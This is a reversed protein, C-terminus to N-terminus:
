RAAPKQSLRRTIRVVLRRPLFRVAFAALRSAFGTIALPRGAMMARYGVEAVQRSSMLGFTTYRAGELHARGFFDTRTPGPCLCTATVGTGRLEEALAETYSLVCAKTAYYGAMFPGPQFAATSAVNLIQGKRRGVMGPLALKVLAVVSMVNVQFMGLEAAMPLEAVAGGLGCGANNVLADLPREGLASWVAEPAKPDALDATIVLTSTGHAAALKDRLACLKESNRAVLVLDWGERALLRALDEGIGSSAGTVLALPRAMIPDGSFRSRTKVGLALGDRPVLTDFANALGNDGLNVKVGGASPPPPTFKIASEELPVKRAPAPM